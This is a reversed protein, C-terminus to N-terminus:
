PAPEIRQGLTNMEELRKKLDQNEMVQGALADCLAMIRGADARQRESYERLLGVEFGNDQM